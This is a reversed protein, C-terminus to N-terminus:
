RAATRGDRRRGFISVGDVREWREALGPHYASPDIPSSGPELYALREYIQDSIDRAVTENVLPPILSSPEGTAAIMVTGCDACIPRRARCGGMLLAMGVLLGVQLPRLRAPEYTM